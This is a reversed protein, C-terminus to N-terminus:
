YFWPFESLFFLSVWQVETLTMDFGTFGLLVM